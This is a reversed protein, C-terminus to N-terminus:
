DPPGSIEALGAFWPAYPTSRVMHRNYDPAGDDWWVPGREGPARKLRDVETRATARGAEDNSRSAQAVARRARMLARVLADKETTPLAPNALRWM